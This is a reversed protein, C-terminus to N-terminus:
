VWHDLHRSLVKAATSPTPPLGAPAVAPLSRRVGGSEACDCRLAVDGASPPRAPVRRSRHHPQPRRRDGGLRGPAQGRDPHRRAQPGRPLRRQAVQGPVRHRPAAARRRRLRRAPRRAAAAPPAPRAAAPDGLLAAGAGPPATWARGQRGRGATQEAATVVTGHPAGAEALERRPTNTSDTRPLPPAPHRLTLPSDAPM